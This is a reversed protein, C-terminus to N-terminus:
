VESELDQLIDREMIKCALVVIVILLMIITIILLDEFVLDRWVMMEGCM